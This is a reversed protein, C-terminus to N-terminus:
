IAKFFVKAVGRIDVNHVLVYIYLLLVTFKAMDFFTAFSLSHIRKGHLVAAKGTTAESKYFRGV